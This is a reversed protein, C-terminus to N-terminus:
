HFVPSVGGACSNADHTTKAHGPNLMHVKQCNQTRKEAHTPTLFTKFSCEYVHWQGPDGTQFAEWLLEQSKWSSNQSSPSSNLHGGHRFYFLWQIWIVERSWISSGGMLVQDSKERAMPFQQLTHRSTNTFTSNSSHPSAQRESRHSHHPMTRVREEPEAKTM